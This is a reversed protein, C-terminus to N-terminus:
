SISYQMQINVGDDIEQEDAIEDGGRDEDGIL